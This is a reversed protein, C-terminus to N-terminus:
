GAAPGRPPPPNRPEKTDDNVPHAGPLPMFRVGKLKPDAKYGALERLENMYFAPNPAATMAKLVREFEQPRPDHYDLFADRDVLPVLKLAWWARLFELRPLTAHQALTYKAADATSRNSSSLDGVLEPPVNYCQRMYARLGKEVEDMQLARFDQQVASLTTKGTVFLVKAVNDPGTFSEEYKKQLDEVGGGLGADGDPGQEVGVVAAPLGGREFTVKRGRQIAESTDLEDGLAIGRGVGRGMPNEPDLHKLWIMDSEAVRGNFNNYAIHFYPSSSTPTMFVCSPPVPEYGNVPGNGNARRLWMFAEGALDLHVQLLKLVERGPALPTPATLLAELEHGPVEVMDGTRLAKAREEWRERPDLVSKAMSTFRKQAARTTAKYVHWPPSAVSEAVTDVVMQFLGHHRYALMVSRSGRRPAFTNVPISYVLPRGGGNPLLGFKMAVNM